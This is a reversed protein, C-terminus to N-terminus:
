SNPGLINSAAPGYAGNDAQSKSNKINHAPRTMASHEAPGAQPGAGLGALMAGEDASEPPEPGSPMAPSAPAMPPTLQPNNYRAM